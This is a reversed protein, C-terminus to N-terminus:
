VDGKLINLLLELDGLNCGPNKNNDMANTVFEIAQNIHNRNYNIEKIFRDTLKFFFDVDISSITDRVLQLEEQMAILDNIDASKIYDNYKM